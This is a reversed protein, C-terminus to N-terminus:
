AWTPFSVLNPWALFNRLSESETQKFRKGTASLSYRSTSRKLNSNVVRKDPM